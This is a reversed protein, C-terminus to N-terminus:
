LGEPVVLETGPRILNPDPGIRDRNAAYVEPWAGAIAANSSGAGLSRATIAWLSDGLQVTYTGGAVVPVTATSPARRHVHREPVPRAPTPPPEQSAAVPMPAGPQVVREPAPPQPVPAAAAPEAPADAAAPPDLPSAPAAETAASAPVELHGARQGTQEPASSEVLAAPVDAADVAEVAQDAVSAVEAPHETPATTATAAEAPEAALPVTGPPDARGNDAAEGESSPQLSRKPVTESPELADRSEAGSRGDDDDSASVPVEQAPDSADKAWANAPTPALLGTVLGAVAARRAITFRRGGPELPVLVPRDEVVSSRRRARASHAGGTQRM